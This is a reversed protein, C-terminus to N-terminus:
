SRRVMDAKQSQCVTTYQIPYQGAIQFDQPDLIKDSSSLSSCVRSQERREQVCGMREEVREIVKQKVPASIFM